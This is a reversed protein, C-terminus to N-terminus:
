AHLRLAAEVVPRGPGGNTAPEPRHGVGELAAVCASSSDALAQLDYGGELFLLRRGPPAYELVRATLDGFDGATLALGTLPDRRHADFGASVILWTPPDREVIPAV